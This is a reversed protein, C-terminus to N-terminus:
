LQELNHWYHDCGDKCDTNRRRTDAISFITIWLTYVKVWEHSPLSLTKHRANSFNNSRFIVCPTYTEKLGSNLIGEEIEVEYPHSQHLCRNLSELIGKRDGESSNLFWELGEEKTIYSQSIKNITLEFENMHTIVGIHVLLWVLPAYKQECFDHCQKATKRPM